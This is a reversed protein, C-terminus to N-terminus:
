RSATAMVDVHDGPQRRFRELVEDTTLTGLDDSGLVRFQYGLAALGSLFDGGTVGSVAQLGPPSFEFVLAPGHRRLTQTAGAIVRGEAGEVDIKIVDVRPEAELIDDLRRAQVLDATEISEPAGDFDAIAGNGGGLRRYTVVSSADSIACPVILVNDVKNVVTNLLLVTHNQPGPECAVVKGERGVARAALITFYGISAGVDVFVSGPELLRLVQASVHTEYAGARRMEAGVPDDSRAYLRIGNQLDIPTLERPARGDARRMRDQFEASSVFYGTLEGITLHRRRVLLAYARYGRDDPKRGLLLRYCAAVDGVRARSDFGRRSVHDSELRRATDRAHRLLAMGRPTVVRRLAARLRDREM